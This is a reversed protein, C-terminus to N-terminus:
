CMLQYVKSSNHSNKLSEPNGSKDPLTNQDNKPEGLKTGWCHKAFDTYIVCNLTKLKTLSFLSWLPRM